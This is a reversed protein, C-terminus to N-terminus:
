RLLFAPAYGPDADEFLQIEGAVANMAHGIFLAGVFPGAYFVGLRRAGRQRVFRQVAWKVSAALAVMDEASRIAGRGLPRDPQLFM